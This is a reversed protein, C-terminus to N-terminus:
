NGWREALRRAYEPQDVKSIDLADMVREVMWGTSGILARVFTLAGQKIGKEVGRGIMAQSFSGMARVEGELEREIVMNYEDRLIALREEVGMESTFLLSLLNLLGFVGDREDTDERALYVM